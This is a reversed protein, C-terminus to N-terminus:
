IGVILMLINKLPDKLIIAQAYFLIQKDKIIRELETLPHFLFDQLAKRM